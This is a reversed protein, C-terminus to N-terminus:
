RAIPCRLIPITTDTPPPVVRWEPRSDPMRAAYYDADGDFSATAFADSIFNDVDGFRISEANRVQSTHKTRHKRLLDMRVTHKPKTQAMGYALSPLQPCVFFAKM